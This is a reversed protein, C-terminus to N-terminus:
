FDNFCADIENGCNISQCQADGAACGADEICNVAILLLDYGDASASEICRDVCARDGDACFGLCDNFDLCSLNGRPAAVPGLCAEYAPECALVGCSPRSGQPCSMNVCDVLDIYSQYGAASTAQICRNVCAQDNQPCLGLCDDFEACTGDGGPAVGEGVCAVIERQCLDNQCDTDDPPCQDAAANLCAVAAQYTARAAPPAAAVCADACAQDDCDNVCAVLANCDPDGAPNQAGGECTDLEDACADEFCAIDAPPCGSTLRCRRVAAYDTVADPTAESECDARCADDAAPCAESCARLEACDGTTPAPPGGDGYCAFEVEACRAEMCARNPPAGPETCGQERACTFIADYRASSEPPTRNRCAVSCEANGCGQLCAALAACDPDGPPPEADLEVLGMDAPAADAVPGGDPGGGGMDDVPLPRMMDDGGLIGGVDRVGVDDDEEKDGGAPVCGGLVMVLALAWRMRM